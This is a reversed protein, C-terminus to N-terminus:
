WSTFLGFTGGARTYFPNDYVEGGLLIGIRPGLWQRWTIGGEYSSFQRLTASAGTLQYGEKGAGARITFWSGGDHGTTISAFGRRSLIKGPSSWNWRGGAEIVTRGFYVAASGTVAVDEFGQKADVYTVGGTLIVRRSSLLARSITADARLDPFFFTGSGGGIAGTVYWDSDLTVRTGLSGYTGQDNFAEQTRGELYWVTRAGLPLQLRAGGGAWDGFNNGVDQYYGFFDIWGAPRQAAAPLVFVVSLVLSLFRRM